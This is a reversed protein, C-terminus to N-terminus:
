RAICVHECGHQHGAHATGNTFNDVIDQLVATTNVKTGGGGAGGRGEQGRGGGRGLHTVTGPQQGVDGLLQATCCEQHSVAAAAAADARTCYQVAPSLCAVSHEAACNAMVCAAYSVTGLSAQWLYCDGCWSWLLLMCVRLQVKHGGGAGGGHM